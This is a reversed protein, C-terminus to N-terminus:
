DTLTIERGQHDLVLEVRRSTHIDDARRGPRAHMTVALGPGRFTLELERSMAVALADIGSACDIVVTESTLRDVKARIPRDRDVEGRVVDVTLSPLVPLDTTRRRRNVLPM